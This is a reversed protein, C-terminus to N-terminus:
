AELFILATPKPEMNSKKAEVVLFTIDPKERSAYCEAIMRAVEQPLRFVRMLEAATCGGILTGGVQHHMGEVKHGDVELILQGVELGGAEFAAGNEHINIIRPLPHKTNAGGEIAIGLIPKSKKVTVHLNGRHDPVINAGNEVGGVAGGGGGHHHGHQGDHHHRSSNNHQQQQLSMHEGNQGLSLRQMSQHRRVNGGLLAGSEEKM